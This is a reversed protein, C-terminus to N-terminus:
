RVTIDKLDGSPGIRQGNYWNKIVTEFERLTGNALMRQVAISYATPNARLASFNIGSKLNLFKEFISLYTGQNNKASPSGLAFVGLDTAPIGIKQSVAAFTLHSPMKSDDYNQVSQYYKYHVNSINKQVISNHYHLALTDMGSLVCLGAHLIPFVINSKSIQVPPQSM